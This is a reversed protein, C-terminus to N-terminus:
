AGREGPSADPATVAPEPPPKVSGTEGHLIHKLILDGYREAQDAQDEFRTASDVRGGQREQVALQRALIAKEKFSRVATWLAAELAEAQEALLGEGGYAHGVHCRFQLLGGEPSQWLSGGCEPCTFVTVGGRREGRMQAAMDAAMAEPIQELPDTTM